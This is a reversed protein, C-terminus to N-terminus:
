PREDWEERLRNIREQPDTEDAYERGAGFFEMVSHRRGSVASSSQGSTEGDGRRSDLELDAAILTLLRLRDRPPLARIQQQYLDRVDPAAM